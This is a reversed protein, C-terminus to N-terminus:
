PRVGVLSRLKVPFTRESLLLLFVLTTPLWAWKRPSSCHSFGGAVEVETPSLIIERSSLLMFGYIHTEIKCVEM